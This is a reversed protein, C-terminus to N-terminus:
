MLTSRALVWWVRVVSANSAFLACLALLPWPQWPDTTNGLPPFLGWLYKANAGCQSYPSGRIQWPASYFGIVEDRLSRKARPPFLHRSAPALRTRWLHDCWLTQPLPSVSCKYTKLLTIDGHAATGRLRVHIGACTVNIHPAQAGTSPHLRTAGEWDLVHSGQQTGCLLHATLAKHTDSTTCIYSSRTAAKLPRAILGITQKQKAKKWLMYLIVTM